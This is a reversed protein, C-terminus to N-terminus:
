SLHLKNHGQSVRSIEWIPFRGPGPPSAYQATPCSFLSFHHLQSIGFNEGLSPHRQKCSTQSNKSYVTVPNLIWKVYHPMRAGWYHNENSQRKAPWIKNAASDSLQSRYGWQLHKRQRQKNETLIYDGSLSVTDSPAVVCPLARPGESWGWGRDEIIFAMSNVCPLHCCLVVCTLHINWILATCDCCM